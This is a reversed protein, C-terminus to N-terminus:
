RAQPLADDFINHKQAWRMMKEELTNDVDVGFEKARGQIVSFAAHFVDQLTEQIVNEAAEEQATKKRGLKCCFCKQDSM